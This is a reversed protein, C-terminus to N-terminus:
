RDPRYLSAILEDWSPISWGSVDEPTDDDREEERTGEAASPRSKHAPAEATEEEAAVKKARGRGRGRRRSRGRGTDAAPEEEALGGAEEPVEVAEGEEASETAARAPRRGRRREGRRPGREEPREGSPLSS